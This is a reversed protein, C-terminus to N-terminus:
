NGLFLFAQYVANRTGYHFPITRISGVTMLPVQCADGGGLPVWNKQKQM